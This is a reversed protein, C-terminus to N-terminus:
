TWTDCPSSLRHELDILWLIFGGCCFAWVGCGSPLGWKSCSLFAQVAIFFLLALLLFIISCTLPLVRLILYGIFIIYVWLPFFFLSMLFLLMKVVLWTEWVSQFNDSYIFQFLYSKTFYIKITVIWNLETAWNHRVRQSVMSQLVGPKGTWWSSGSSVWVWTWRM